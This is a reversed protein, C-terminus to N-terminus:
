IKKINLIAKWTFVNQRKYIFFRLLNIPDTRLLIKMNNFDFCLVVVWICVAYLKRYMSCYSQLGLIFGIRSFRTHKRLMIFVFTIITTRHEGLVLYSYLVLAIYGDM